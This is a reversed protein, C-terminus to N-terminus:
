RDLGLLGLILTAVLEFCLIRSLFNWLLFDVGFISQASQLVIFEDIVLAEQIRTTRSSVILVLAKWGTVGRWPRKRRFARAGLNALLVLAAKAYRRQDRNM